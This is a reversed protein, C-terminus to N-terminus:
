VYVQKVKIKKAASDSLKKLEDSTYASQYLLPNGHMRVYMTDTNSIEKTPFDKHNISCFTIDYESLVDYVKKNWWSSHRFEVINKFGPHLNNIIKELNEENYETSPPLQFLVCALKHKLGKECTSYFDNLLGKCAKFKKYHTILRPAKVSFLFHEPTKDFWAKMMPLTPFRYFTVNLELTNFHECYFSLWKSQTLDEPYFIKKWDKYYFGSCGIKWEKM